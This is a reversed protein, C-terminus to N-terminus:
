LYIKNIPVTFILLKIVTNVCNTFRWSLVCLIAFFIIITYRRCGVIHQTNAFIDVFITLCIFRKEERSWTIKLFMKSNHQMFFFILTECTSFLTIINSFFFFFLFALGQQKITLAALWAFQLSFITVLFRIKIEVCMLTQVNNSYYM